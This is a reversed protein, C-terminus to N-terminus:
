YKNKLRNKFNNCSTDIKKNNERKLVNCNSFEQATVKKINNMNNINNEFSVKIKQICSKKLSNRKGSFNIKHSLNTNNYKINSLLSIPKKSLILNILKIKNNNLLDRKSNTRNKKIPLIFKGNLNM